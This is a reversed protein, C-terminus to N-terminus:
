AVNIACMHVEIRYYNAINMALSSGKDIVNFFQIDGAAYEIYLETICQLHTENVM